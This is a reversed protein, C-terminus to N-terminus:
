NNQHLLRNSVGAVYERYREPATKGFADKELRKAGSELLLRIIAEHGGEAAALLPTVRTFKSKENLKSGKRILEKLILLHGFRAAYHLPTEHISDRANVDAGHCILRKVLSLNGIAAAQHLATRGDGIYARDHSNIQDAHNKLFRSIMREYKQVQPSSPSALSVLGLLLPTGRADRLIEHKKSKESETRSLLVEFVRESGRTAARELLTERIRNKNRIVADPAHGQDLWQSISEVDDHDLRRLIPDSESVSEVVLKTSPLSSLAHAQSLSSWLGFICILLMCCGFCLVPWDILGM